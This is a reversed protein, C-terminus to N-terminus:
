LGTWLRIEAIAVDDWRAGPYASDITLRVSSTMVPDFSVYQLDSHDALDIVHRRGDSFTLTASRVRGNERYRSGTGYGNVIGLRAVSRPSALDLQIWEGIGLGPTDEVWATAARGDLTMAAGYSAVRSPPLISSASASQVPVEAWGARPHAIRADPRAPPLLSNSQAVPPKVEPERLVWARVEPITLMSIAVGVIAVAVGIVGVWLHYVQFRDNHASEGM